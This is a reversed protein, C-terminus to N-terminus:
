EGEDADPWHIEENAWTLKCSCSGCYEPNHIRDVVGLCETCRTEGNIAMYPAVSVNRRKLYTRCSECIHMVKLEEILNGSLSGFGLIRYGRFGYMGVGDNEAGCLDCVFVKKKSM